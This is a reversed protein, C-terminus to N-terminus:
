IVTAAVPAIVSDPEPRNPVVPTSWVLEVAPWDLLARISEVGQNGTAWQIVRYTM